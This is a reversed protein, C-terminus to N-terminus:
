DNNEGRLKDLLQETEDIHRGTKDLLSIEVAGTDGNDYLITVLGNDFIHLVLFEKNKKANYSHCKENFKVIDGVKISEVEAKKKEEYAKAKAILDKPNERAYMETTVNVGFYDFRQKSNLPFYVKMAHALDEIGKNYEAQKLEDTLETNNRCYAFGDKRGADYGKKYQVEDQNKAGDEYGKKYAFEKAEALKDEWAKETPELKAKQFYKAKIETSIMDMFGTLVNYETDTLEITYKM